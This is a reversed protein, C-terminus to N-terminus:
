PGILDITMSVGIAVTFTGSFTVTPALAEGRALRFTRCWSGPSAGGSNSVLSPTFAGMGVVQTFTPGTLFSPSVLVNVGIPVFITYAALYRGSLPATFTGTSFDYLSPDGENINAYRVGQLVNTTFTQSVGGGVELRTQPTSITGMIWVGGGHSFNLVVRSGVTVNGLYRAYTPPDADDDGDVTVTARALFPDLSTVTGTLYRVAPTANRQAEKIASAIFDPLDSPDLSTVDDGGGRRRGAM